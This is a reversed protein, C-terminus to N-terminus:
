KSWYFIFSLEYLLYTISRGRWNTNTIKNKFFKPCLAMKEKLKNHNSIIDHLKMNDLSPLEFLLGLDQFFQLDHSFELLFHFFKWGQQFDNLIRCMKALIIM